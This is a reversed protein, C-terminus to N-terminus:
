KIKMQEFIGVCKSAFGDTQIKVRTCLEYLEAEVLQEMLYDTYNLLDEFIMDMEFSEDESAILINSIAHGTRYYFWDRLTKHNCFINAQVKLGNYDERTM